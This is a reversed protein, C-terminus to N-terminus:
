SGEDVAGVSVLDANLQAANFGNDLPKTGLQEFDQPLCVWAEDVYTDWFAWTMRKTAGWTIVTLGGADYGVVNVAHGGWSGPEIQSLPGPVADWVQQGQAIVPLQIGIYLGFFLWAATQVLDHKSPDCSAYAYLTEGAIGQRRWVDLVSMEDAGQDTSPDGPRYGQTEYLALVDSDEVLKATGTAERSFVEVMHAVAACTCDGLTSNLYVPWSPIGPTLDLSAPAQPLPAVYHELSLARARKEPPNPLRGLRQGPVIVHETM